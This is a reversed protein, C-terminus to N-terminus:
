KVMADDAIRLFVGNDVVEFGEDRCTTQYEHRHKAPKNKEELIDPVVIKGPRQTAEWLDCRQQTEAREVHEVNIYKTKLNVLLSLRGIM